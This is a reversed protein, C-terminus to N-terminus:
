YRDIKKMGFQQHLHTLVAFILPWQSSWGGAVTVDNLRKKKHKFPGVPVLNFLVRPVDYRVSDVIGAFPEVKKWLFIVMMLDAKIICCIDTWILFFICTTTAKKTMVYMYFHVAIPCEIQVNDKDKAFGM